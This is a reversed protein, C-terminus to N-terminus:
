NRRLTPVDISIRRKVSRRIKEQIAVFESRTEEYDSAPLGKIIPNMAEIREDSV